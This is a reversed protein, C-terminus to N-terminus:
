RDIHSHSYVVALVPRTGLKSNALALAAKATEASLEWATKAGDFSMIIVKDEAAIFRRKADECDSKNAFPLGQLVKQNVAKTVATAPKSPVSAPQQASAGGPM